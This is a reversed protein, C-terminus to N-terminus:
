KHVVLIPRNQARSKNEINRFLFYNPPLFFWRFVQDTCYRIRYHLQNLCYIVLRFTMPEIGILNEIKLQGLGKLRVIASLDAWGRISILVLYRRSTLSAVEGCDTLRNDLFHPYRSTGCGYPSRRSTASIAKGERRALLPYFLNWSM